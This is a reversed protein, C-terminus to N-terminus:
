ASWCVVRTWSSAGTSRSGLVRNNEDPTRLSGYRPRPLSTCRVRIRTFRTAHQFCRHALHSEGLRRALIAADIANEASTSEALDELLGRADDERGHDLLMEIWTNTVNPVEAKPGTETVTM